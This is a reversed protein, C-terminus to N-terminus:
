AFRGLCLPASMAFEVASPVLRQSSHSRGSRSSRVRVNTLLSVLRRTPQGGHARTGEVQASRGSTRVAPGRLGLFPRDVGSFPPWGPLACSAPSAPPRSRDPGM